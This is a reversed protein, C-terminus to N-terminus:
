RTTRELTMYVCYYEPYRTYEGPYAAHMCHTTYMYLVYQLYCLCMCMSPTGMGTRCSHTIASGSTYIMAIRYVRSVAGVVLIPWRTSWMACVQNCEDIGATHCYGTSAYVCYHSWPILMSSVIRYSSVTTSVCCSLTYQYSCM